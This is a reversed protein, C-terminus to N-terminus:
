CKMVCNQQHRLTSSVPHYITKINNRFQSAIAGGGDHYLVLSAEAQYLLVLEVMSIFM